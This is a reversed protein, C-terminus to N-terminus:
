EGEFGQTESVRPEVPRMTAADRLRDATFALQPVRGAALDALLDTRIARLKARRSREALVLRRVNAYSPRQLGISVAATGVLRCTEAIPQEDRDLAAVLERILAGANRSVTFRM